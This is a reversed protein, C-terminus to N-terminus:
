VAASAIAPITRGDSLLADLYADIVAQTADASM